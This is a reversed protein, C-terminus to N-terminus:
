SATLDGRLKTVEETLSVMEERLSQATARINEVTISTAPVNKLLAVIISEQAAVLSNFLQSIAEEKKALEQWKAVRDKDVEKGTASVMQSMTELDSAHSSLLMTMLARRRAAVDGCIAFLEKLRTLDGYSLGKDLSSLLSDYAVMDDVVCEPVLQEIETTAAGRALLKAVEIAKDEKAQYASTAMDYFSQVRKNVVYSSVFFVVMVGVMLGILLEKKQM